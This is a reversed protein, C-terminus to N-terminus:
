GGDSGRRATTAPRVTDTRAPAGAQMAARDRRELEHLIDSAPTIPYSGYFVHLGSKAGAAVLGLAVLDLEEFAQQPAEEAPLEPEGVVVLDM